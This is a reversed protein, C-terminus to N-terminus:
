KQENLQNQLFEILEQIQEKNLWTTVGEGTFADVCTLDIEEDIDLSGITIKNGSNYNKFEKYKM